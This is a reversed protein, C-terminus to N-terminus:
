EYWAVTNTYLKKHTIGVWQLGFWLPFMQTKLAQAIVVCEESVQRRLCLNHEYLFALPQPLPPKLDLVLLSPHPLRPPRSPDTHLGCLVPAATTALSPPLAAITAWAWLLSPTLDCRWHKDTLALPLQGSPCRSSLEGDPCSLTDGRHTM